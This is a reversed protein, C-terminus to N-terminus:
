IVFDANRQRCNRGRSSRRETATSIVSAPKMSFRITAIGDPAVKSSKWRMARTTLSQKAPQVRSAIGFAAYRFIREDYRRRPFPVGIGAVLRRRHFRLVQRVAEPVVSPAAAVFEDSVRLSLKRFRHVDTLLFFWIM